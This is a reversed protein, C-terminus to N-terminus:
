GARRWQVTVDQTAVCMEAVLHLNRVIVDLKTLVTEM